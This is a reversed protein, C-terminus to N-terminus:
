LLIYAKSDWIQPLFSVFDVKYPCFFKGIKKQSYSRVQTEEHKWLINQKCFMHRQICAYTLAVM